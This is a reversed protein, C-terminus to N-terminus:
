EWSINLKYIGFEKRCQDHEAKSKVYSVLSVEFGSNRLTSRVYKLSSKCLYWSLLVSTGGIGACQKILVEMKLVDKTHRKYEGAAKRAQNATYM